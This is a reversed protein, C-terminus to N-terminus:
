QSDRYNTSLYTALILHKNNANRKGAAAPFREQTNVKCRDRSHVQHLHRFLLEIVSWSLNIRNGNMWSATREFVRFVDSEYRPLTWTPPRPPQLPVRRSRPWCAREARPPDDHFPSRAPNNIPVVAVYEQERCYALVINSLRRFGDAGMLCPQFSPVHAPM